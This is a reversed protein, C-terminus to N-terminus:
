KNSQFDVSFNGQPINNNNPPPKLRAEEIKSVPNTKFIAFKKELESESKKTKRPKVVRAKNKVSTIELTANTVMKKGITEPIAMPNPKFGIRREIGIVRAALQAKISGIAVGGLAM